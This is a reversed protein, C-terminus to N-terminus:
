LMPTGFYPLSRKVRINNYLYMWLTDVGSVNFVRDQLADEFTVFTAGLSPSSAFKRSMHWYDLTTRFDGHSTSNIFKWDAYRSQYGFVPASANVLNAPSAYVEFKYVEQEGLHAFAPWPYQLFEYRERFMRPMGQFYASTPM